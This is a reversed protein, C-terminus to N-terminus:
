FIQRTFYNNNLESFTRLVNTLKSIQPPCIHLVFPAYSVILWKAQLKMLYEGIKFVKEWCISCYIQLSSLWGM